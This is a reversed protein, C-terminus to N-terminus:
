AFLWRKKPPAVAGRIAKLAAWGGAVAVFATAGFTLLDIPLRKTDARHQGFRSRFAGNRLEARVGWEGLFNDPRGRLLDVVMSEVVDVRDALVLVLWHLSQGESWNRYAARRLIGSLGRTPCSTGFVPTLEAHETSREREFKAIQQEPVDWHAGTGEPNFREKPVAPRVAPDLDVGWGDITARLISGDPALKPKDATYPM